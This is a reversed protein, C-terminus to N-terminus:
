AVRVNNPLWESSPHLGAGTWSTGACTLRKAKDLFVFISATFSCIWFAETLAVLTRGLRRHARSWACWKVGTGDVGAHAPRTPAPDPSGPRLVGRARRAARAIGCRRASTPAKWSWCHRTPAGFAPVVASEEGVSICCQSEYAFKDITALVRKTISGPGQRPSVYDVAAAADM